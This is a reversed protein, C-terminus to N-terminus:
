AGYLEPFPWRQLPSDAISRTGVRNGNGGGESHFAAMALNLTRSM